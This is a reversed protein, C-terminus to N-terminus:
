EGKLPDLLQELYKRSKMKKIKREVKLTLTKKDSVKFARKLIWPRHKSTYSSRIPNNHMFIRKSVDETYGIYYKDSSPSYLIYIFFM